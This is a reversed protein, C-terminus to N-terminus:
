VLSKTKTKSKPKNNTLSTKNITKYAKVIENMKFNKSKDESKCLDLFYTYLEPELFVGIMKSSERLSKNLKIIQM